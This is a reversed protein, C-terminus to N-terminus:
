RKEGTGTKSTGSLAEFIKIDQRVRLSGLLVVGRLIEGTRPDPVMSGYSWGRTARHVWNVVNYRADLPHVGEPLIEARYGGKFGAKDFAEAWWNAGELLASRIPEPAGNDIYFVIPKIVKGNEDKQLRFRHALQVVTNGDLPASMDVYASSILGAREDSHRVEYGDEPLKMFTTHAILTVAKANPTTAMFKVARTVALFLLIRM